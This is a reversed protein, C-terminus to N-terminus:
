QSMGFQMLFVDTLPDDAQWTYIRVGKEKIVRWEPTDRLHVLANHIDLLQAKKHGKAWEIFLEDHFSLKILHPFRKPFEKVEESNPLGPSYYRPVVPTVETDRPGNRVMPPGRHCLRRWHLIRIGSERARMWLTPLKITGAFAIDRM